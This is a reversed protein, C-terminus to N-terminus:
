SLIRQQRFRDYHEAILLGTTPASDDDEVTTRHLRVPMRLATALSEMQELKQKAHDITEVSWRTIRFWDDDLKAQIVIFPGNGHVTYDVFPGSDQTLGM